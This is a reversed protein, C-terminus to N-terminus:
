QAQPAEQVVTPEPAMPMNVDMLTLIGTILAQTLRQGGNDQLVAALQHLTRNKDDQNM